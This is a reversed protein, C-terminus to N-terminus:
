GLATNALEGRIDRALHLSLEHGQIEYHYIGFPVNEIGNEGIVVYIELPYIGGASPISRLRRIYETVGQGAWLIRSLQFLLIPEPSFDRISRRQSIAEALALGGTVFPHPLIIRISQETAM